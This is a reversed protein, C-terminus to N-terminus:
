HVVNSGPTPTKTVSWSATVPSTCGALDFTAELSGSASADSAFAGALTYSVAPGSSAISFSNTGIPVPPVITETIHLSGCRPFVIGWAVTVVANDEESFSLEQRPSTTGSWTGDFQLLSTTGFQRTWEIDQAWVPSAIALASLAALVLVVLKFSAYHYAQLGSTIHGCLWITKM